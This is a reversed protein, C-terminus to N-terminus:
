INDFHYIAMLRHFLYHTRYQRSSIYCATCRIYNSQVYLIRVMCSCVRLTKIRLWPPRHEAGHPSAGKDGGRKTTGEEMHLYLPFFYLLCASVLLYLVFCAFVLVKILDFTFCFTWYRFILAFCRFDYLM